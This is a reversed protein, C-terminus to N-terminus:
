GSLYKEKDDLLIRSESNEKSILLRDIIIWYAIKYQDTVLGVAVKGKIVGRDFTMTLNWSFMPM